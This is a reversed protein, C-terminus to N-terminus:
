CGAITRQHQQTADIFVIPGAHIEKARVQRGIFLKHGPGRKNFIHVAGLFIVQVKKHPINIGNGDVQDNFCVKIIACISGAGNGGLHYLKLVQHLQRGPRNVRTRQQDIGGLRHDFVLQPKSVLVIHNGAFHARKDDLRYAMRALAEKHKQIAQAAVFHQQKGALGFEIGIHYLIVNNLKQRVVISRKIALLFGVM